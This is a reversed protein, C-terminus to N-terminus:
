LATGNSCQKFNDSNIYLKLFLCLITNFIALLHYVRLLRKAIPLSHVIPSAFSNLKSYSLHSNFVLIITVKDSSTPIPATNCATMGPITKPIFGSRISIIINRPIKKNGSKLLVTRNPLTVPTIEPNVVVKGPPCIGFRISLIKEAM